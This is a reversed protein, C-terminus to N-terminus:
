SCQSILPPLVEPQESSQASFSPLRCQCIAATSPVKGVIGEEHLLRLMWTAEYPERLVPLLQQMYRTYVGPNGAVASASMAEVAKYAWATRIATLGEVVADIDIIVARFPIQQNTANCAASRTQSRQSRISPVAAAQPRSQLPTLLRDHSWRSSSRFCPNNM